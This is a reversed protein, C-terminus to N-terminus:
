DDTLPMGAEIQPDSYSQVSADCVSAPQDHGNGDTCRDTLTKPKDEIIKRSLPIARPDKEVNALWEDMAIIAQDVYTTDGFLPVQGRWLVQNASTGHERELRARM